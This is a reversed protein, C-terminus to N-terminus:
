EVSSPSAAARAAAALAAAETRTRVGLKTLVRGVHHEATKAAIFLQRGIQANTHGQRILDLVEAERTTLGTVAATADTRSRVRAGLPRLVQLARDVMPAAGVREFM